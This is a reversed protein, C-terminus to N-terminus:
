LCKDKKFEFMGRDKMNIVLLRVMVLKKEYEIKLDEDINM